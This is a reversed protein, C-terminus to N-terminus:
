RGGLFWWAAAAIALWQMAALAMGLLVASDMTKWGLLDAIREALWYGPGFVITLLLDSM